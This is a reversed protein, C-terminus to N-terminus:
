VGGGHLPDISPLDLSSPKKLTSKFISTERNLSVLSYEESLVNESSALQDQSTPAPLEAPELKKFKDFAEKTCSSFYFEEDMGIENDYCFMDYADLQEMITAEYNGIIYVLYKSYLRLEKGLIQYTTIIVGLKANKTLFDCFENCPALCFLNDLIHKTEIEISM